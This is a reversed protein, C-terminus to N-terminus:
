TCFPAPSLEFYVSRFLYVCRAGFETDVIKSKCQYSVGFCRQYTFVPLNIERFTFKAINVSSHNLTMATESAKIINDLVIEFLIFSLMM